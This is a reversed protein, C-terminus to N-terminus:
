MPLKSPHGFHHQGCIFLSPRAFVNAREAAHCHRADNHTAALCSPIYKIFFSILGRQVKHNSDILAAAAATKNPPQAVAGSCEKLLSKPSLRGAWGM